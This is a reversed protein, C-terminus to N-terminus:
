ISIMKFRKKICKDCTVVTDVEHWGNGRIGPTTGCLAKGGWYSGSCSGDPLSEVFHVIVGRDKEFGNFARGSKIATKM